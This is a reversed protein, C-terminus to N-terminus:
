RAAGTLTLEAVHARYAAVVEDPAGAGAVRGAELWIARDAITVLQDIAHTVLLVSTGESMMEDLRRQSRERFAEDGVALVEDVLLVEPSRVTAVSFALRAVMGSSYARLPVDLYDAVGAYDAIREAERM